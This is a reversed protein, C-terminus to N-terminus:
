RASLCGLTGASQCAGVLWDVLKRFRADGDPLVETDGSDSVACAHGPWHWEVAYGGRHPSAEIARTKITHPVLARLEGYVQNSPTAALL